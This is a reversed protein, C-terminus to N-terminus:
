MGRKLEELSSIAFAAHLAAGLPLADEDAKFMPHHVSHVAGQSENRVGLAVFCGPIRETYYAFDEGGMVPMLEQVSGEGFLARGLTQALQWCHGDNVTPPYADMFEFRAECRNAAAIHTSIARVREELFAMGKATLSRITGTLKVAPPIVNFAEGGHMTTISVVGSELPDLERSVITQLECIVKAATVVPDATMHPMAAHGGKGSITIAVSGASALLTGTRSGISRTPLSPWVHLGFIREVKPAELAGEQCMRLGGAGGEEAPQFLLKVTGHLENERRKLVRAAGLLMSVHCDHGCAHMKGDISSRFPVDAQECIPLADMDARLAVCPGAGDGLTALVGTGAIPHRYPIGLEDLTRRILQSTKVEQYGLEPIRHLERRIGAIWERHSQAEDLLTKLHMEITM